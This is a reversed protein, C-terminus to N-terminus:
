GALRLPIISSVAWLPPPFLSLRTEEKDYMYEVKSLSLNRDVMM